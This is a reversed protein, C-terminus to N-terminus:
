LFNLAASFIIASDRQSVERMRYNEGQKGMLYAEPSLYGNVGGAGEEELVEAEIRFVPEMARLELLPSCLFHRNGLLYRNGKGSEPNVTRKFLAAIELQQQFLSLAQDRNFPLPPTAEQRQTLEQELSHASYEFLFFYLRIDSCLSLDCVEFRELKLLYPSPSSGRRDRVHEEIRANAKLFTKEIMAYCRKSTKHQIVTTEGYVPDCYKRLSKYESEINSLIQKSDTLGM